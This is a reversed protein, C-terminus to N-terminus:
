KGGGLEGRGKGCDDRLLSALAVVNDLSIVYEDISIPTAGGLVERIVRRVELLCDVVQKKEQTNLKKHGQAGTRQANAREPTSATAREPPFGEKVSAPAVPFGEIRLNTTANADYNERQTVM